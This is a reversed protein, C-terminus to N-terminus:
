GDYKEMIPAEHLALAARAIDVVDGDCRKECSAIKRLADALTKIRRARAWVERALRESEDKLKGVREILHERELLLVDLRAGIRASQRVPDVPVGAADLRAHVTSIQKALIEVTALLTPAAAILDADELRDVRAIAGERMAPLVDILDGAHFVVWPGPTHGEFENM